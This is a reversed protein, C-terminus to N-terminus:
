QKGILARLSDLAMEALNLASNTTKKSDKAVEAEQQAFMKMALDSKIKRAEDDPFEHLYPAISALELEMKRHRRQAREHKDAQRAAYGALIAVAVAVFGRTVTLTPTVKFTEKLTVVFLAIAFGVLVCLSLFAVIRWLYAARKESNAIRQYGGVMGTDTIAGVVKEAETKREAMDELIAKTKIKFEAELGEIKTRISEYLEQYDSEKAEAINKWETEKESILTELAEKSEEQSNMFQQQRLGEKQEFELRLTELLTEARKNQQEVSQQLSEVGQKLKQLQKQATRGEEEVHRMHQGASRRLAIASEHIADMDEQSRPMPIQALHVLVNELQNHANQIHAPNKNSQFNSLQSTVQNLAKTLNNLNQIPILYPDTRQLRRQTEQLVNVIRDIREVEDAPLDEASARIEEAPTLASRLNDHIQHNEFQNLWEPM